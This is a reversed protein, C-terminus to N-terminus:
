RMRLVSSFGVALRESIFRDTKCLAPISPRLVGPEEHGVSDILVEGCSYAM